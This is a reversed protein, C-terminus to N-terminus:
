AGFGSAAIYAGAAGNPHILVTPALCKAPVRFHGFMDANGARSIPVSPTTGTATTAAGCYLSASVTVVPGPTGNAPAVPIVLGRLSVRFDGDRALRAEGRKLVWPANGPIAGNLVPDSPVEPALSTKLLAEGRHDGRHDGREHGVASVATTASGAFATAALAAVARARSM